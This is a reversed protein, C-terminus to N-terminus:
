PKKVGRLRYGFGRVTEILTPAAPDDELKERLHRIHVDVTRVDELYIDGGWAGEILRERSLPIDLNLAMCALLRYEIPTLQVRGVNKFVEIKTPDIQIDGIRIIGDSSRFAGASRRLQARIRSVLERFSFPKTVYDDAGIELGLIKDIEEDRATVLIVPFVFREARLQKCVDLGSIDPLRVDLLAIDPTNRRVSDVADGSTSVQTVDFGEDRLGRVLGKAVAADDEAILVSYGM